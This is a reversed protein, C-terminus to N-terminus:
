TQNGAIDQTCRECRLFTASNRSGVTIRSHVHTSHVAVLIVRSNRTCNKLAPNVLCSVFKQLWNVWYRTRVATTGPSGLTVRRDEIKQESATVQGSM